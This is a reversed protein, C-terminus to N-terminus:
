FCLVCFVQLRMLTEMLVQLWQLNQLEIYNITYFIQWRYTYIHLYQMYISYIDVWVCGEGACGCWESVGQKHTCSCCVSLLWCTSAARCHHLVESDGGRTLRSRIFTTHDTNLLVSCDKDQVEEHRLMLLALLSVLGSGLRCCDDYSNCM